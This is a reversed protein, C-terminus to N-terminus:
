DMLANLLEYNMYYVLKGKDFLKLALPPEDSTEGVEAFVEEYALPISFIRDIYAQTQKNLLMMDGQISSIKSLAFPLGYDKCNCCSITNCHDLETRLNSESTSM